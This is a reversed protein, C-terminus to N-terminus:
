SEYINSEKILGALKKRASWGLTFFLISFSFLLGTLAVLSVSVQSDQYYYSFLNILEILACIGELAAFTFWWKSIKRCSHIKSSLDTYIEFPGDKAEKRLIAWHMYIGVCEIGLDELFNIYGINEVNKGGSKDLFEIKYIYKGPVEEEFVYRAWFYDTLAMGKDSMSNIWREEKEYNYFFKFTTYKM